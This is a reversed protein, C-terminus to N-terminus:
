QIQMAGIQTQIANIKHELHVMTKAQQEEQKRAHEETKRQAEIDQQHFVAEQKMAKTQMDKANEQQTNREIAAERERVVRNRVDLSSEGQRFNGISSSIGSQGTPVSVVESAPRDGSRPKMDSICISGNAQKWFYVEEARSPITVCLALVLVTLVVIVKMAAEMDRYEDKLNNRCPIFFVQFIKGVAPWQSLLKRM